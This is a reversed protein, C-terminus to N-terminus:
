QAHGTAWKTYTISLTVDATECVAWVKVSGEIEIADYQALRHGVNAGSVAVDEGGVYVAQASHNQILCSRRQPEHPCVAKAPENAKVVASRTYLKSEHPDGSLSRFGATIRHTTM